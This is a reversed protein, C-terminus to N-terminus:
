SYFNSFYDLLIFNERGNENKQPRPSFGICQKPHEVRQQSSLWSQKNISFLWGLTRYDEKM